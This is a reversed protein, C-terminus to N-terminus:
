VTFGQRHESKCLGGPAADKELLLYDTIGLTELHYATSLGTIGAGLILTNVQM